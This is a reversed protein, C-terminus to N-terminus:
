DVAIVPVHFSQQNTSAERRKLLKEYNIVEVM